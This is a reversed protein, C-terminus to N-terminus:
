QKVEAYASPLDLEELFARVVHLKQKVRRLCGKSGHESIEVVWLDGEKRPKSFNYYTM